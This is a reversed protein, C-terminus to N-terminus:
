RVVENIKDKKYKSDYLKTGCPYGLSDWNHDRNWIEKYKEELYPLGGDGFHHHGRYKDNVYVVCYDIGDPFIEIKEAEKHGLWKGNNCSKCRENNHGIEDYNDCFLCNPLIM